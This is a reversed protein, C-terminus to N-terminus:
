DNSFAATVMAPFHGQPFKQDEEYLFLGALAQPSAYMLKEKEELYVNSM